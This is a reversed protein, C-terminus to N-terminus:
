WVIKGSTAKCSSPAVIVLKGTHEGNKAVLSGSQYRRGNNKITASYDTAIFKFTAPYNGMPKDFRFHPRNGNARGTYDAKEQGSDHHEIKSEYVTGDKFLVRIVGSPAPQGYWLDRGEYNGKRYYEKGGVIVSEIKNLMAASSLFYWEGREKHGPADSKEYLYGTLDHVVGTPETPEIPDIDFEVARILVSEGQEIVIEQVNVEKYPWILLKKM